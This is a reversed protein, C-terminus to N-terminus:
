APQAVAQRGNTEAHSVPERLLDIFESAQQKTLEAPLCSFVARCREEVTDEDGGGDRASSYIAKVQAPTAIADGDKVVKLGNRAVPSDVVRHKTRQVTPTQRSASSRRKRPEKTEATFDFDECFQTGYGLAALARGLAKTEAKEIFDGFDEATESGWGTASGAGPVTVRARFLALGAGHKVLETEIVADPHLTRLWLLRWKVELYDKGSLKTLYKSAEFNSDTM